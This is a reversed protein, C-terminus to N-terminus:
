GEALAFAVAYENEYSLSVRIERIGKKSAIDLVNGALTVLPQGTDAGLIEIENLHIGAGDVGLCKFVAEKGAFRTAFFLAPDARTLAEEREKETFSKRVFAGGGSGLGNRIRQVSLIDTGIGIVM